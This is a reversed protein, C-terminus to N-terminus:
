NALKVKARFDTRTPCWSLGLWRSTMWGGQGLEKYLKVHSHGIRLLAHYTDGQSIHYHPMLKWMSMGFVTNSAKYPSIVGNCLALLVRWERKAIRLQKQHILSKALGLITQLLHMEFGVPLCRKLFFESFTMLHVILSHSRTTLRLTSHKDKSFPWHHKWEISSYEFLFAVEWSLNTLM